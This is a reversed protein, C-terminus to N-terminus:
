EADLIKGPNLIGRPDLTRKLARMLALEEDSRSYGLWAKKLLGIGHEASVSGRHARVLEFMARDLERARALFAEKDLSDPKMVNVHLNGDGIHGFLCIEFGPYRAALLEGLAACFPELSAVPLAIDNKHPLGTSSLSESIGERLTWLEAAQSPTQAVVVDAALGREMVEALWDTLAAPTDAGGSELELLVYHSSPADFPARVHRHRALRALCADTFFEYADIPFPARARAERFLALVGALDPVAFLIVDARAPLKALKLTAETIVGLTGESGVMLRTLDYGASSKRARTGTRIVRGDALVVTLGLVNERMTGYRVATTGSARTATMGGITADAGPDVPFMLGSNKLQDDLRKRTMGAEVTVDMDEQSLRVMRNMRTLDISVGGHIANVQGEVSSGMGFPVIPTRHAACTRVVRSVEDTSAPFVVVDPVGPAHYSEGHSHHERVAEATSLRDGLWRRLEDVLAPPAAPM